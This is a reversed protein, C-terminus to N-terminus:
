KLRSASFGLIIGALLAVIPNIISSDERPQVQTPLMVKDSEIESVMERYSKEDILVGYFPAKENPELIKEKALTVTPLL